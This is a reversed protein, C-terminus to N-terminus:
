CWQFILTLVSTASVVKWDAYAYVEENDVDAVETADPVSSSSAHVCWFVSKM